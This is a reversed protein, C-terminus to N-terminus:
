EEIYKYSIDVRYYDLYGLGLYVLGIGQPLTQPLFGSLASM